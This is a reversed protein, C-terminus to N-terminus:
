SAVVVKAFRLVVGNLYYGKETVDIIRGKQEESQAPVNAIAEHHDTNFVEGMSKIEELGSKALVSKYKEYILVLGDKLSKMTEDDPFASIAREFDDLVPLMASIVDASATKILELREKSTRKKYNDFEAHLRLFKDTMEDIRNKQQSIIEDKDPEAVEAITEEKNDAAQDALPKTDERANEDKPNAVGKKKM